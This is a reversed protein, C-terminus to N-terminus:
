QALKRSGFARDLRAQLGKPKCWIWWLFRLLWKVSRYRPNEYRAIVIQDERAKVDQLTSSKSLSHTRIDALPQGPITRGPGAEILRIFLDQDMSFQLSRDIGGVQEYVRRRWFCGPQPWGHVPLNAAFLRNPRIAYSRIVFRGHADVINVDGNTFVVGRHRSFFRAVRALTGPRYRDDSNLWALIHGTAHNFGEALAAAQGEDPGIRVYSLWSEYKRIVSVSEDTSGGDMIIYELNPYGQLLVSRITEEIFQGQNYSPTVISVRPWPQGSPMTDPLRPSEETWPWGTTGLPPPPLEGLVPCRM